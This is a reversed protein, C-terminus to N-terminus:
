YFLSQNYDSDDVLNDFNGSIELIEQSESLIVLDLAPASYLKLKKM